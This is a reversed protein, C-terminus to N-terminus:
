ENESDDMELDENVSDDESDLNKVNKVNESDDVWASEFAVGSIVTSEMNSEFIEEGESYIAEAYAHIKDIVENPM